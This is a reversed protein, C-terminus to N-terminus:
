VLTTVILRCCIYCVTVTLMGSVQMCISCASHEGADEMDPHWELVKDTLAHVTLEPSHAADIQNQNKNSQKPAAPAASTNGKGRGAAKRKSGKKGKGALCASITNSDTHTCCLMASLSNTARLAVAKYQQHQAASTFIRTSVCVHMCKFLTVSVSYM